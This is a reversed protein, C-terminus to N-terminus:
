SINLQKIDGDKDAIARMKLELRYWVPTGMTYPEWTTLGAKKHRRRIGKEM